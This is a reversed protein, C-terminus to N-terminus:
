PGSAVIYREKHNVVRDTHKGKIETVGQEISDFLRRGFRRGFAILRRTLSLSFCCFPIKYASLCYVAIEEPRSRIDVDRDQKM